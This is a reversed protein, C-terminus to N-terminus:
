CYILELGGVAESVKGGTSKDNIHVLCAYIRKRRIKYM